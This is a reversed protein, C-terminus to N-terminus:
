RTPSNVQIPNPAHTVIVVRVAVVMM